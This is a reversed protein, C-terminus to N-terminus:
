ISSCVSMPSSWKSVVRQFIMRAASVIRAGSGKTLELARSAKALSFDASSSVPGAMLCTARVSGSVALISM